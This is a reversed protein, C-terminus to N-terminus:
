GGNWLWVTRAGQEGRNVPVLHPLNKGMEQIGVEGSESVTVPKGWSKIQTLPNEPEEGVM